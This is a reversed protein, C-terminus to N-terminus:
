DRRESFERDTCAEVPTDPGPEDSPPEDFRYLLVTDGVVRVPCYARLWALEDAFTRPSPM